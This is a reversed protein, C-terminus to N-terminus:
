RRTPQRAVPIIINSLDTARVLEDARLYDLPRCTFVLVQADAAVTKLIDGFWGLRSEDTHVLQDDLVIATKLQSAVSLRVLTALQDRTGVSLASLIEAGSVQIGDLVVGEMRLSQDMTVGAYKGKTLAVFRSAVPIALAKGLHSSQTNEAERLTDRLLKWSEADIQLERERAQAAIVAEDLAAVREKVMAGDGSTLAGDAKLYAENVADFHAQTKAVLAEASAMDGSTPGGPVKAQASALTRALAARDVAALQTELAKLEGQGSHHSERADDLATNAQGVAETAQALTAVAATVASNANAPGSAAAATLNKAKAELAKVTQATAEVGETVRARASAPSEGNLTALRTQLVAAAEKERRRAEEVNWGAEKQKTELQALSARATSLDKGKQTRLNEGTTEWSPGMSEYFKALVDRPLEGIRAEKAELDEASAPAMKTLVASKNRLTEAELRASRALVKSDNAASLHRGVAALVAELDALGAVGAKELVPLAEERWRRRLAEFARRTEPAGATIEVDVLDGFALQVRREAEVLHESKLALLEETSSDDASVRLALARRPKVLVSVGGGVAAEALSKDLALRKLDALATDSPLLARRRAAENLEAQARTEHQSAEVDKSLAEAGVRAAEARAAVAGQAADKAVRWRGYAIIGDALAVDQVVALEAQRAKALAEDHRKVETELKAIESQLQALHAMQADAAAVQAMVAELARREDAVKSLQVAVQSLELERTKASGDNAAERAREEAARVGREAQERLKKAGALALKKEELAKKSEGIRKALQAVHQALHDAKAIEAQAARVLETAAASTANVKAAELDAAVEARRDRLERTRTEISEASELQASLADREAKLKKVAENAATLESAQGTKRKGKETFFRDFETQAVTLM